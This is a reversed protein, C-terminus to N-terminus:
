YPSTKKLVAILSLFTNYFTEFCLYFKIQNIFLCNSCLYWVNHFSFRAYFKNGYFSWRGLNPACMNRIQPPSHAENPPSLYNECFGCPITVFFLFICICLICFLFLVTNLGSLSWLCFRGGCWCLTHEGMQFMECMTDLRRWLPRWLFLSYLVCL